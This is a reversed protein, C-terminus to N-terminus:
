QIRGARDPFYTCAEYVLRRKADRERGGERRREGERERERGERGAKSDATVGYSSNAELVTCILTLWSCWEETIASFICSSEPM